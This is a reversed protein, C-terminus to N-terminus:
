NMINLIVYITLFNETINALTEGLITFNENLSCKEINM